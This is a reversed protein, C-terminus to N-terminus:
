QNEPNVEFLLTKPYQSEIANLLTQLRQFQEATNLKDNADGYQDLLEAVSGIQEVRTMLIGMPVGAKGMSSKLLMKTLDRITFAIEHVDGLKGDEIVESLEQEEERVERWISAPTMMEEVGHMEDHEEDGHAFLSGNAALLITMLVVLIKKTKM